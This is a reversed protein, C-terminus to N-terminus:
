PVEFVKLLGLIVEEDVRVHGLEIRAVGERSIDVGECQLRAALIEQTWKRASRLYAMRRGVIINWRRM